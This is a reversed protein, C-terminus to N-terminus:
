GPRLGVRRWLLATLPDIWRFLLVAAVSVAVWGLLIWLLARAARGIWSKSQAM